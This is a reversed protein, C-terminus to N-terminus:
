GNCVRDKEHECCVLPVSDSNDELDSRRTLLIVSTHLVVPVASAALRLSKGDM